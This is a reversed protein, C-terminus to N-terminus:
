GGNPFTLNFTTQLTDGSLLAVASFTVRDLLTGGGTAAQSLLGWETPSVSADVTNAGVTTFVNTSGALTGTARTNDPNYQTTLETQLATNGVVEATAGTGLGHFKMNEPEVTNRFGDAIYGVGSTTVINLGALGLDEILGDARIVKMFLSGEVHALGFFDGARKAWVADRVGQKFAQRKRNDSRWDNVFESLGRRPESMRRIQARTLPQTVVPLVAVDLSGSPRMEENIDL